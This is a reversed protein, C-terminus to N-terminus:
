GHQGAPDYWIVLEGDPDFSVLGRLEEYRRYGAEQGHIVVLAMAIGLENIARALLEIKLGDGLDAHSMESLRVRQRQAAAVDPM